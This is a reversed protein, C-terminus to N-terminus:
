QEYSFPNDVPKGRTGLFPFSGIARLGWLFGRWGYDDDHEDYKGEQRGSLSVGHFFFGVRRM